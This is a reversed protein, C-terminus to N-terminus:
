NLVTVTSKAGPTVSLLMIQPAAGFRVPLGSEGLGRSVILIRDGIVEYGDSTDESHRSVHFLAGIFPFRVQGAHTHGSMQIPFNNSSSDFLSPNHEVVITAANVPVGTAALSFDPRQSQEDELGIIWIDGGARKVRFAKNELLRVRTKGLVQRIRECSWWCDHNGMVAYVGLPADFGDLARLGDEELLNDADSRLKRVGRVPGTNWYDGGIYDGALLVIDPHMANVRKVIDRVRKPPMHLSDVHIDSLLVITIPDTTKPWRSTQVKLSKMTLSQPEVWFGVVAMGVGVGLLVFWLYKSWKSM